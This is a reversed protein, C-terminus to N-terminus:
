GEIGFQGIKRYLTSRAIGLRAAADSKNGDAEHLAELILDREGRDIRRLAIQGMGGRFESPLHELRIQWGSTRALAQAVVTDLERVNGPWLGRMLAQLTRPDFRCTSRGQRGALHEVLAPIDERRERLPPVVLPEGLHDALPAPVAASAASAAGDPTVTAILRPTDEREADASLVASLVQALRPSALHVHALILTDAARMESRVQSAIVDPSDFSGLALDVVSVSGYAAAAARALLLKGAGREGSLLVASRADLRARAHGLTEKLREDRGVLPVVPAAPRDSGPAPASTKETRIRTVEIVVGVLKGGRVIESFRLSSHRGNSLIASSVRTGSQYATEGMERLLAHDAADLAAIAAANCLVHEGGLAIVPCRTGRSVHLFHDLIVRQHPHSQEALCLEIDGAARTTIVELMQRSASTESSLTLVGELRRTIPHFIPMGVCLNATHCEFFHEHGTVTVRRQEELVTGIGNTGGFEEKFCAGPETNTV